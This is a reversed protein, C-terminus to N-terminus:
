PGRKNNCSGFMLGVIIFCVKKISFCVKFVLLRLNRFSSFFSVKKTPVDLALLSVLWLQLCGSRPLWLWIDQVSLIVQWADLSLRHGIDKIRVHVGLEGFVNIVFDVSELFCSEAAKEINVQDVVSVLLCINIKFVKIMGDFIVLLKLFNERIVEFIWILFELYSGHNM